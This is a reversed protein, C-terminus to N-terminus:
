VCGIRFLRFHYRPLLNFIDQAKSFSILIQLALEVAKSTQIWKPPGSKRFFNYWRWIVISSTFKGESRHPMYCSSFTLECSSKKQERAFLLHFLDAFKYKYFIFHLCNLLTLALEQFWSTCIM